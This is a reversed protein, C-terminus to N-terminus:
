PNVDYIHELNKTKSLKLQVNTKLRHDYFSKRRESRFAGGPGDERRRAEQWALNNRIKPIVAKRDHTNTTTEFCSYYYQKNKHFLIITQYPAKM